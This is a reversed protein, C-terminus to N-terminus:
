CHGQLSGHRNHPRYHLLTPTLFKCWKHVGIGYQDKYAGQRFPGGLEDLLRITQGNTPGNTQWDTQGDTERDRIGDQKCVFHLMLLKLWSKTVLSPSYTWRHTGWVESVDGAGPPSAPTLIYSLSKQRIKFNNDGSADTHWLCMDLKCVSAISRVHQWYNSSPKAISIHSLIDPWPWILPQIKWLKWARRFLFYKLFQQLLGLTTLLLMTKKTM